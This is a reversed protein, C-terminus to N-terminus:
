VSWGSFDQGTMERFRAADPAIDRRLRELLDEPFDKAKRPKGRALMGRIRDKTDRSVAGTIRRGVPSQAFRLIPAPVRSLERSDNQAGMDLLQHHAVGIHDCVDDMVAQPDRVLRDFDLVLIQEKPFHELFADLQRAYCSADLIHEYEHTGAFDAPDTDLMGLIFSHRYQSEARVVPDRVIYILRADPCVEAMRAPVGPFDRCKTYNPSAEGRVKGTDTFQDSYWGIGQGWTKEAVFFDTEKDRSMDVEPHLALYRYLSTTGCKMAGIIIFQPLLRGSNAAAGHSTLTETTM